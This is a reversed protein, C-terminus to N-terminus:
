CINSNLIKIKLNKIEIADAFSNLINQEKGESGYFYRDIKQHPLLGNSAIINQHKKLHYIFLEYLPQLVKKFKNTLRHEATFNRDTDIVIALFLSTDFLNQYDTQDISLENDLFLCIVPFKKFKNSAQKDWNDLINAIEIPHGFLYNCALSWSISTVSKSNIIDFSEDKKVNSVQFNQGDIEVYLGNTLNGTNDTLITQINGNQEVLNIISTSKMSDIVQKIIDEVFINM